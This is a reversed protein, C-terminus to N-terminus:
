APIYYFTISAGADPAVSFTATTCVIKLTVSGTPTITIGDVVAWYPQTTNVAVPITFVTQNSVGVATTTVFSTSSGLSILAATLLENNELLQEYIRRLEQTIESM